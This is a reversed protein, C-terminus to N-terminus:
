GCWNTNGGAKRALGASVMAQGVDEGGVAVTRVARGAEDQFSAGVTVPGRNLLDALKVAAEIGRNAEDACVAGQIRPADMGAIAVREGDAFITGGDVVCNPGFANYCQGFRKAQADAAPDDNFITAAGIGVAVIALALAFLLIGAIGGWLEREQSPPELKRPADPSDSLPVPDRRIRSPRLAPKLAPKRAPKLAVTLRGPNWHKSM